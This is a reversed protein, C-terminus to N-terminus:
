ILHTNLNLPLCSTGLYINKKSIIQIQITILPYSLLIDKITLIGIADNFLIFYSCVLDPNIFYFLRSLFIPM